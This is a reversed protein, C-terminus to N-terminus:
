NVLADTLLHVRKHICEIISIVSALCLYSFGWDTSIHIPSKLKIYDRIVYKIIKITNYHM